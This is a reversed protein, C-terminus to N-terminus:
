VQRCRWFQDDYKRTFPLCIHKERYDNLEYWTNFGAGTFIREAVAYWHQPNEGSLWTIAGGSETKLDSLVVIAPDKLEMAAFDRAHEVLVELEGLDSTHVVLWVPKGEELIPHNVRVNSKLYSLTVETTREGYEDLYAQHLPELLEFRFVNRFKLPTIILPSYTDWTLRRALFNVETGMFLEPQLEGLVGVPFTDIYWTKIPFGAAIQGIFAQLHEANHHASEPVIILEEQSFYTAAKSNSVIVKIPSRIDQQEIFSKIRSFHGWGGGLAYFAIM